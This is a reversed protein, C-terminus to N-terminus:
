EKALHMILDGAAVLVEKNALGITKGSEIAAITPAIGAFGTIASVVFDVDPHSAVEKLGEEGCLVPIHPVMKQLERAKKEEFVAVQKPKFEQIQEYLLDIRSHAALTVVELQLHRAISLSQQGISGTSGLIGLRKEKM